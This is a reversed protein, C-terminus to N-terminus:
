EMRLLYSIKNSINDMDDVLSKLEDSEEAYNMVFKRFDEYATTFDTFDSTLTKDREVGPFDLDVPDFGTVLYRGAYSEVFEDIKSGFESFAEDFVVHHAHSRTNWHLVKLICLFRLLASVNM